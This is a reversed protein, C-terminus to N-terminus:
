WHRRYRKGVIGGHNNIDEVTTSTAETKDITAFRGGTDLFGHTYGLQDTYSGVVQGLDNDGLIFTDSVGPIDVGILRGSATEIFGHSHASGSYFSPEV